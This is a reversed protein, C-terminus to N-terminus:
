LQLFSGLVEEVSVLPHEHSIFTSSTDM